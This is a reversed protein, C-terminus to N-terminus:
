TKKKRRKKREKKKNTLSEEQQKIFLEQSRWVSLVSDHKLKRSRTLVHGNWVSPYTRIWRHKYGIHNKKVKAVRRGNDWYFIYDGETMSEIPIEVHLVGGFKRIQPDLAKSKRSRKRPRRKIRRAM